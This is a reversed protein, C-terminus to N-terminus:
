PMAVVPTFTTPAPVFESGGDEWLREDDDRVRVLFQCSMPQDSTFRATIEWLAPRILSPPTLELGVPNVESRNILVSVFPAMWRGMADLDLSAEHFDDERITGQYVQGPSLIPPNSVQILGVPPADENAADFAAAVALYDFRTFETAGDVFLSFMGERDGRNTVTYRVEVHLRDERLQPVDYALKASLKQRQMQESVTEARVRLPVTALVETNSGDSELVTPGPFYVPDNPHCGSGALVLTTGLGVLCLGRLRACPTGTTAAGPEPQM